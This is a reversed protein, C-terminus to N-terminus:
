FREPWIRGLYQSSMWGVTGDPARVRWWVDDGFAQCRDIQWLANASLSAADSFQCAQSCADSLFEVSGSSSYAPRVFEGLRIERLVQQDFGPASRLTAYNQVRSVRYAQESPACINHAENETRHPDALDVLRSGPASALSPSLPRGYIREGIQQRLFRASPPLPNQYSGRDSEIAYPAFVRVKLSSRDPAHPDSLWNVVCTYWFLYAEEEAATMYVHTRAGAVTSPIEFLWSGRYGFSSYQRPARTTDMAPSIDHCISRLSDASLETPLPALGVVDVGLDRVREPTDIYLFEDAPLDFFALAFENSIRLDELRSFIEAAALLATGFAEEVAARSFQGDPVDLAPGHFGLRATAHISRGRDSAIGEEYWMYTGGLFSIACASLCEDNAAVHTQIGTTSLYRAIELAERFSGGPSDLCLTPTGMAYVGWDSEGPLLQRLRDADGEVIVGSLMAHCPAHYTDILEIEAAAVPRHAMAALTTGLMLFLAIKAVKQM